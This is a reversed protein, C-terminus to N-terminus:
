EHVAPGQYIRGPELGDIAAIDDADLQVDFFLTERQRGPNSSDSLPM